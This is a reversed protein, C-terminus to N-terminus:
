EEICAFNLRMRRQWWALGCVILLAATVPPMNGYVMFPTIGQYPRIAYTLVESAFQRSRVVVKGRPDIVASIGTNTARLLFRGAERARARAIELHQYPALSNGFWADNSSNILLEAAPMQARFISAYASEYCISVAVPVDRLRILEDPAEGASIDSMPIQIFRNLFLLLGRFPMYEGFPVLHQKHYFDSKSGIKYMSNFYRDTDFDYVFIGSILETNTEELETELAELFLGVRHKFEPIATEPWVMIDSDRHQRSLERYRDLSFQLAEPSLKIEQPINGQVISAQLVPGSAHTWELQDLGAGVVYVLLGITLAFVRQMINGTVAVALLASLFALVGGTGLVGVVPLYGSLLTDVQTYGLLLWPFGTLVWSHLWESLLWVAPFVLLFRLMRGVFSFRAFGWGMLGLFIAMAVVLIATILVALGVPAGGFQYLSNFVWSVGFGYMGLGFCFCGTFAAKPSLKEIVLLLFAPVLLAIFRWEFPAFAFCICAGLMAPLMYQSVM